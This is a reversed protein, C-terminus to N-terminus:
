KPGAISLVLVVIGVVVIAVSLVLLPGAAPLPRRQRMARENSSWREYAFAATATGIVALAVGLVTRAHAIEFPPVLQVVAVAAAILSLSTRLWALFTRENALSFRYDPEDGDSQWRPRWPPRGLMSVDILRPIARSVGPPAEGDQADAGIVVQV